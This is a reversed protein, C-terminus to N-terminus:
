LAKTNPSLDLFEHFLESFELDSRFPPRNGRGNDERKPALLVARLMDSESSFSQGGFTEAIMRANNLEHPMTRANVELVTHVGKAVAEFAAGPGPKGIMVDSLEMLLGINRVFGFVRKTYSTKLDSLEQKLAKNHGCVFIVNIPQDFSNLTRAIASMKPSGNGGYFVLITKHDSAFEFRLKLAKARDPARDFFAPRLVPGSIQTVQGVDRMVGQEYGRESFSVLHTTSRPIWSNHYTESHDTVVMMNPIGAREAEEIVDIGIFPLVCMVLDPKAEAYFTQFLRTIAKGRFTRFILPMWSLVRWAFQPLRSHKLLFNYQAESQSAVLREFWGGSSLVDKYPNVFVLEVDRGEPLYDLIANATARHGAGADIVFLCVKIAEENKFLSSFITEVHRTM